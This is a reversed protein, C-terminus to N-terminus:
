QYSDWAKRILDAVFVHGEISWHSDEPAYLVNGTEAARRMPGTLDVFEIQEEVCFKTFYTVLDWPQWDICPSHPPFVCYDGYVRFKMPIYFIVLQINREQCIEKARRLTEKTKGFRKKEYEGFTLMAYNSYFYQRHLNGQNDRYWGFTTVGNIVVPHCLRRLLLFSNRTFSTKFFKKWKIDFPKSLKNRDQKGINDGNKFDDNKKIYIMNNEFDQDDYLDNGEFFFWAVLQPNLPLAYSQLIELEQLMGYGSVGLNAVSFGTHQGLIEACTQEDSVYHGEIYSDGILVIDAQQLNKRNRFGQSDTTFTQPTSARFPLNWARSMDSRPRGSWFNNPPRRFSLKRDKIFNTSPGSWEGSVLSFLHSFDLLGVLASIEIISLMITLIITTGIARLLMRRRQTKTGVVIISWAVIYSLALGIGFFLGTCQITWPRIDRSLWATAVWWGIVFLLLFATLRYRQYRTELLNM